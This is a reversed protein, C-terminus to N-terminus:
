SSLLFMQLSNSACHAASPSQTCWNNIRLMGVIIPLVLLGSCVLYLYIRFQKFATSLRIHIPTWNRRINSIPLDLCHLRLYSRFHLSGKILM